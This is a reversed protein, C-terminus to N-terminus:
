IAESFRNKLMGALAMALIFLREQRFCLGAYLTDSHFSGACNSARLYIAVVHLLSRSSM